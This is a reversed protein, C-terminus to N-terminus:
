KIKKTPKKRYEKLYDRLLDPSDFKVGHEECLERSKWLTRIAKKLQGADHYLIALLDYRDSLDAPRYLERFFILQQKDKASQWLRLIQAIEHKRFAIASVLDTRAEAILSRCEAAFIGQRHPDGREVLVELRPVHKMAASRDDREYLDELVRDFLKNVESWLDATPKNPSRARIKPNISPSSGNRNKPTVIGANGNEGQAIKGNASVGNRRDGTDQSRTHSAKGIMVEGRSISRGVRPDASRIM